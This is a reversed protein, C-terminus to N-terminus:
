FDYSVIMAWLTVLLLILINKYDFTYLTICMALTNIRRMDLLNLYRSIPCEYFKHNFDM